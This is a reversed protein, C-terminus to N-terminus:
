VSVILNIHNNIRHLLRQVGVLEIKEMALCSEDVLEFASCQSRSGNVLSAHVLFRAHVEGFIHSDKGAIGVKEVLRFKFLANSCQLTFAFREVFSAAISLEPQLCDGVVNGVILRCDSQHFGVKGLILCNHLTVLLAVRYVIESEIVAFQGILLVHAYM